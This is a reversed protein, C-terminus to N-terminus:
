KLMMAANLQERCYGNFEEEDADDEEEDDEIERQLIKNNAFDLTIIGDKLIINTFDSWSYRRKIFTNFRIEHDTFGIEIAYKAQYELLALIIFVFSLWQFYPM